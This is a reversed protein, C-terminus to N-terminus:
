VIVVVEHDLISKVEFTVWGQRAALAPRAASMLLQLGRGRVDEPLKVKVTFPGVPLLETMPARWTAANTLNVMHLILRGPQRYLHCDILGPGRVDLPMADGAAWRVINALLAAHDPLNDRGYRRDLDAPLYAVRGRLVLAPIGTKAERMWATEPPMTPFPPVFTLPVTVGPDTRIAELMGGFPLIATEEFGRLVPHREGEAIRLYTHFGRGGSRRGFDTAPAHAGYLDALAFDPRREGWENYLSSAGTAILAGGQEVFRRIAACHAGSLAGVNPLALVKLERADREIHDANVPLYAVRAALLAQTFGRYPEDVL